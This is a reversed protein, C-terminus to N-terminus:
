TPRTSSKRRRLLRDTWTTIPTPAWSCLVTGLVARQVTVFNGTVAEALMWEADLQLIEGAHVQTGDAVQLVNDNELATSCQAGIQAQGTDAMAQDSVLLQETGAILVDGVGLVSSDSVTVDDGHHLQGGRRADRGGEGGDLLRRAGPALRGGAAHGVPRLQLVDARSLEVADWPPGYNRPQWFLADGPITVPSSSQVGTKLVPAVGLPGTGDKDAIEKADLWIRWPYARQFNPWDYSNTEVANWFRRKTLRDAEDAAAEIASDVLRANDITLKIDTAAMVDIRTCYAARNVAM